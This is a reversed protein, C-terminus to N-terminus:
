HANNVQEYVLKGNIFVKAEHYPFIHHGSHETFIAIAKKSESVLYFSWKFEVISGDMLEVRIVDPSCDFWPRIKELVETETRGFHKALEPSWESEILNAMKPVPYM